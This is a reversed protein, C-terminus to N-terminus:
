EGRFKTYTDVMEPTLEYYVQNKIDHKVSIANREVLTQEVRDLDPGDFDGYGKNLLARRSLKKDAQRFLYDLVLKTSAALIQKGKGGTIRQTNVTLSLCGDIAEMIDDGYIRLDSRKSLAICMAVKGIHDPMRHATGTKDHMERTRWDDYWPQYIDLAEQTWRFQGKASLAIEKLHGLLEPDATIDEFEDLDDEEMTALSNVRYRKDAFVMLTRGIFGGKINVEPVSDSFHEPSSAGLLTINVNKLEENASHKLSNKWDESYHTDYWETLITLASPDSIMLNHFEGSVLFARADKLIPKGNAKTETQSLEQIISQISNRGFITRTNDIKQVFKKAIAVPLGKGLGSEAILMIFVNPSLKYIIKRSKHDRRNLYVGNNAVAAITAICSWYIFERPTEAGATALQVKDIWSMKM